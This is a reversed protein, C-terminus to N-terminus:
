EETAKHIKEDFKNKLGAGSVDVPYNGTFCGKCFDTRGGILEDLSDAPLYALSDAGIYRAIEDTSSCKSAILNEESDIDTGFYCSHIFPPSSIRVHVEKAGAERM